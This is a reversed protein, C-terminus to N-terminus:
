TYKGEIDMIKEGKKRKSRMKLTSWSRYVFFRFFSIVFSIITDGEDRDNGESFLYVRLSFFGDGGCLLTLRTRSIPFKLPKNM